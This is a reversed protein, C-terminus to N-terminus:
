LAVGTQEALAERTLVFAGDRPHNALAFRASAFEDGRLIAAIDHSLDSSRAVSLLDLRLPERNAHSALVVRAVYDASEWEKPIDAGGTRFNAAMDAFREACQMAHRTDADRQDDAALAPAATEEIQEIMASFLERLEVRSEGKTGDRGHLILTSGAFTVGYVAGAKTKITAGEYGIILDNFRGGSAPATECALTPTLETKYTM